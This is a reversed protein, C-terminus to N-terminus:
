GWRRAVSRVRAASRSRALDPRQRVIGGALLHPPSAIEDGRGVGMDPGLNGVGGLAEGAVIEGAGVAM